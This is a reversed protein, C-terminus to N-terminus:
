QRRSSASRSSARAGTTPSRCSCLRQFQHQQTLRQARELQRLAARHKGLNLYATSAQIALYAAADPAERGCLDMASKLCRIAEQHLGEQDLALAICSLNHLQDRISPLQDHIRLRTEVLVERRSWRALYVDMEEMLVVADSFQELTM